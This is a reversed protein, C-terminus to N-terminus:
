KETCTAIILNNNIRVRNNLDNIIIRLATECSKKSNYENTVTTASHGTTFALVITLIFTNM